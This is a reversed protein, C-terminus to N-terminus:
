AEKRPRGRRPTAKKKDEVTENSVALQSIDNSITVSKPDTVIYKQDEQKLKELEETHYKIKEKLTIKKQYVTYDKIWGLAEHRILEQYDNVTRYGLQIHYIMKPFEKKM